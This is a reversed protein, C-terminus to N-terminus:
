NSVMLSSTCPNFLFLARPSLSENHKGSPIIKGIVEKSDSFLKSIRDFSFLKLDTTLKKTERWTKKLYKYIIVLLKSTRLPMILSLPYVNHLKVDKNISIM